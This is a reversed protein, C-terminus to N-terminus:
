LACPRNSRRRIRNPRRVGSWFSAALLGGVFLGIGILLM